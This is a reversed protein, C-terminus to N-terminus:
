EQELATVAKLRLKILDLDPQPTERGRSSKKQFRHLVYVAKAYRVTYVARFTNGQWDEVIELAGAGGFGKLPKAQAHKQGAQALYLAYGFVDQVDEPM